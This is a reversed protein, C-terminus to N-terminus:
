PGAGDSQISRASEESAANRRVSASLGSGSVTAADMACPTSDANRGNDGRDPEDVKIALDQRDQAHEPAFRLNAM